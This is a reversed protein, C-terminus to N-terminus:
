QTAQLRKRDRLTKKLAQQVQKDANKIEDALQEQEMAKRKGETQAPSIEQYGLSILEEDEPDDPTGYRNNEEFPAAQSEQQAVAADFLSRGQKLDDEKFRHEFAENSFDYVPGLRDDDAETNKFHEIRSAMGALM